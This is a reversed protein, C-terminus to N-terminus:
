PRLRRRREDVHAAGADALDDLLLPDDLQRQLSTLDRIQDHEGARGHLRARLLRANWPPTFMETAPPRGNPTAYM